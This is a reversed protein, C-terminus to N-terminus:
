NETGVLGLSKAHNILSSLRNAEARVIRKGFSTLEYYKRRTDDADAPPTTEEIWERELLRKITTYLNGPGLIVVADTQKEITQMIGYGHLPKDALVLLIHFETSTLPLFDQPHKNSEPM